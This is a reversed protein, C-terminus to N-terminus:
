ASNENFNVVEHTNALIMLITHSDKDGQNMQNVLSMINKHKKLLKSAINSIPVNNYYPVVLEKDLSDFDYTYGDYDRYIIEFVNNVYDKFEM